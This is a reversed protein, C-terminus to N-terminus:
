GGMKVMDVGRESGERMKVMDVGRESGERM